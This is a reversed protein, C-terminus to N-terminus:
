ASAYDQKVLVQEDCFFLSKHQRKLLANSEQILQYNTIM